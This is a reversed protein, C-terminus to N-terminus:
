LIFNKWWPYTLGIIIVLLIVLQWSKNKGEVNDWNYDNETRYRKDIPLKEKEKKPNFCWYEPPRTTNTTCPSCTTETTTFCHNIDEM